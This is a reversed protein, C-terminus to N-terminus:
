KLEEAATELAATICMFINDDAGKGTYNHIDDIVEFGCILEFLEPKDMTDRLHEEEYVSSVLDNYLAQIENTSLDVLIEPLTKRVYHIARRLYFDERSVVAKHQKHLVFLLLLLLYLCEECTTDRGEESEIDVYESICECALQTLYLDTDEKTFSRSFQIDPDSTEDYEESDPFLCRTLTDAITELLSGLFLVIHEAVFLIFPSIILLLFDWFGNLQFPNNVLCSLGFNIILAIIWHDAILEQLLSCYNCEGSLLSKRSNSAEM